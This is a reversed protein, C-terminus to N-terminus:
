VDVQHDFVWLLPHVVVDVSARVANNEVNFGGFTVNLQSLVDTGLTYTCTEGQARSSGDLIVQIVELEEIFDEDHADLRSEAALTEHRFLQFLNTGQALDDILATQIGEDLDVA